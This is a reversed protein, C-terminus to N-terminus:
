QHYLLSQLYRVHIMKNEKYRAEMLAVAPVVCYLM